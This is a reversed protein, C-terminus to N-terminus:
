ALRLFNAEMWLSKRVMRLDPWAGTSNPFFCKFLLFLAFILSRYLQAGRRVWSVLSFTVVECNSMVFSLRSTLGKGAPSWLVDVTMCSLMVFCSLFLHDVFSASGQFPWYFIKSSPKFWTLPAGVKGKTWIHILVCLYQYANSGDFNPFKIWDLSNIFFFCTYFILLTFGKMIVRSFKCLATFSFM